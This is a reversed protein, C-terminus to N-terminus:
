GRAQGGGRILDYLRASYVIRTAASLGGSELAAAITEIERRRAVDDQWGQEGRPQQQQQPVYQRPVGGRPWVNLQQVARELEHLETVMLPGGVETSPSEPLVEVTMDSDLELEGARMDGVSSSEDTATRRRPGVGIGHLVLQEHDTARKRPPIISLAPPSVRPRQQQVSAIRERPALDFISPLPLDSVATAVSSDVSNGGARTTTTPTDVEIAVEHKLKSESRQLEVRCYDSASRPTELVDKWEVSVRPSDGRVSEARPPKFVDRVKGIFKQISQMRRMGPGVSERQMILAQVPFSQRRPDEDEEVRRRAWSPPLSARRPDSDWGSEELRVETDDESLGSTREEEDEEVPAFLRNLQASVESNSGDVSLRDLIGSSAVSMVRSERLGPADRKTPSPSPPPPTHVPSEPRELSIRHISPTPTSVYSDPTSPRSPTPKKWRKSKLFRFSAVLISVAICLAPIGLTLILPSSSATTSAPPTDLKFRRSLLSYPIDPHPDPPFVSLINPSTPIIM